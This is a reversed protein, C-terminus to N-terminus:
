ITSQNFVHVLDFLKQVLGSKNTVGIKLKINNVFGEVTRPSIKLIRAIGKATKGHILHFLCEAERKSFSVGQFKKGLYFKSIETQHYFDLIFNDKPNVRELPNISLKICRDEKMKLFPFMQQKFYFIFHNFINPYNIYYNLIEKNDRNTGFFFFNGEEEAREKIVLFNWLDQEYLSKEHSTKPISTFIQRKMGGVPSSSMDYMELDNYFKEQLYIQNWKDNQNTLRLMLQSNNMKIFGFHTIGFTKLLPDGVAEIKSAIAKTFQHSLMDKGM